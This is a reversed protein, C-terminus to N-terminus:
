LSGGVPELRLRPRELVLEKAASLEPGTPDDEGAPWLHFGGRDLSRISWLGWIWQDDNENKGEYLVSHAGVYHKHLTCGGNRLDYEGSITFEGVRDCGEGVVKGQAFTLSLSMYQRGVWARHLWFGTWKGSPFRPDTEPDIKPISASPSSM